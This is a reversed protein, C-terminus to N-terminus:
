FGTSLRLRTVEGTLPKVWFSHRGAATNSYAGEFWGANPHGVRIEASIFRQTVGDVELVVHFECGFVPGLSLLARVLKPRFVSWSGSIDFSTVGFTYNFKPAKSRFVRALDAYVYFDVASGLVQFQRLDFLSYRSHKEDIMQQALPSVQWSIMSGHIDLESFLGTIMLTSAALKVAANDHANGLGAWHRVLRMPFTRFPSGQGPTGIVEKDQLDLELALLGILVRLISWRLQLQRVYELLAQSMQVKLNQKSM